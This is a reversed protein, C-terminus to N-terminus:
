GGRKRSGSDVAGRPTSDVIETAYQRVPVDADRSSRHLVAAAEDAAISRREMLMGQALAIVERAQLADEIRASLQEDSVDIGADALIGSAQTAFLAALEQANPGFARETNSYINLAGLPRDAAMLPTSLISAIGEDIARPIFAPWRTEQALSEVHFWRGETAAAVCPGEGTEYQHDDMRRITDDSSAVTKLRGHRQLSVSVGNAGEVTASALATVLRLAADIVENSAPIKGVLALDSSLTAPESVVARSHDGSREEPGLAPGSPDSAEIQVLASLGTIELIRLTQTPASRVRLVGGSAGLRAAIRAIVRLGSADMFTLAALDLVIGSPEQQVLVGLMADLMPATLVDVDGRVGLVPQGADAGMVAGFGGFDSGTM